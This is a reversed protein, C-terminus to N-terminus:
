FNYKLKFFIERKLNLGCPIEKHVNNLLNKVGFSINLKKLNKTLNLNVDTYDDSSVNNIGNIQPMNILYLSGSFSKSNYIIGSKFSYEPVIFNKQKKLTKVKINQHYYSSFLKLRNSFKYQAEIEVGHIVYGRENEPSLNIVPNVYNLFNITAKYTVPDTIRNYFLTTKFNFNKHSFYFRLDSSYFKILKLNNNNLLKAYKLNIPIDILTKPFSSVDIKYHFYKYGSRPYRIDKSYSFEIGKLRDKSHFDFSVFYNFSSSYNKAKYNKLNLKITFNKTVEVRDKLYISYKYVDPNNNFLKYKYYKFNLGATFNNFKYKLFKKISFKFFSNKSITSIKFNSNTAPTAGISGKYFKYLMSIDLGPYKYNLYISRSFAHRTPITYPINIWNKYFDFFFVDFFNGKKQTLYTKLYLLSKEGIYKTFSLQLFKQKDIERSNTYEDIARIEGNLKFYTDFLYRNISFNFKKLDYSGKLASFYSANLDEPSKTVINIIGAPSSYGDTFFSEGKIIEIRDIDDLSLPLNYLYSKSIFQDETEIGDILIKPACDVIEAYGRVEIYATSSNVHYVNIGSIINLLDPLNEIGLAKIDKATFVEIDPNNEFSVEQTFSTSSTINFFNQSFVNFFSILVFCFTFIVIKM